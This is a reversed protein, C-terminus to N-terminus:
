TVKALAATSAQREKLRCGRMQELHMRMGQLAQCGANLALTSSSPSSELTCAHALSPLPLTCMKIALYYAPQPQGPAVMRGPLATKALAAAMADSSTASAFDALTMAGSRLALLQDALQVLM